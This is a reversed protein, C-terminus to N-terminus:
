SPIGKKECYGDWEKLLGESSELLLELDTFLSVIWQEDIKESHKCDTNKEHTLKMSSIGKNLKEKQSDTLRSWEPSHTFISPFLDIKFGLKVLHSYLAQIVELKKDIKKALPYVPYRVLKHHLHMKKDRLTTILSKIDGDLNSFWGILRTHDFNPERTKIRQQIKNNRDKLEGSFGLYYQSKFSTEFLDWNRNIYYEKVDPRIIGNTKIITLFHQSLELHFKNLIIRHVVRLLILIIFVGSIIPIIFNFVESSINIASQDIFGPNIRFKICIIIFGLILYLDSILDNLFNEWQPKNLTEWFTPVGKLLEKDLGFFLTGRLLLRVLPIISLVLLVTGSWFVMFQLDNGLFESLSYGYLFIVLSISFFAKAATVNSSGTEMNIISM